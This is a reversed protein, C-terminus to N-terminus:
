EVAAFVKPLQDVTCAHAAGHKRSVGTEETVRYLLWSSGTGDRRIADKNNAPFQHRECIRVDLDRRIVFCSGDLAM